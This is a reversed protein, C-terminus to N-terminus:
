YDRICIDAAVFWREQPNGQSDTYKVMFQNPWGNSYKAVGIVKGVLRTGVIEVKDDLMFEM